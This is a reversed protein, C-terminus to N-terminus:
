HWVTRERPRQQEIAEAHGRLEAAATFSGREEFLNALSVALVVLQRPADLGLTVPPAGGIPAFAKGWAQRAVEPQGANLAAHGALRSLEAAIDGDGRREAADAARTYAGLADNFHGRKVHLSGLSGYAEAVLGAAGQREAEQAARAFAAQAEDADGAALLARARSLALRVPHEPAGSPPRESPSAAPRARLATILREVEARDRADAEFWTAAEARAGLRLVLDGLHGHAADVVIWRANAIEPARVLAEVDRAYQAPDDIHQPAMAVVLGAACAPTALEGGVAALFDDLADASAAGPPPASTERGEALERARAPWGRSPGFSPASLVRVAVPRPGGEGLARIWALTQGVAHPPVVLHLLRARESAFFTVLVESLPLAHM